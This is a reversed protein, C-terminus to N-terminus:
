FQPERSFNRTVAHRAGAKKTTQSTTEGSTVSDLADFGLHRVSSLEWSTRVLLTKM